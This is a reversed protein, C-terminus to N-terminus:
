IDQVQVEVLLMIKEQVPAVEVVELGQIVELNVLIVAVAVKQVM